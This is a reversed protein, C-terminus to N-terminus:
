PSSMREKNYLQLPFETRAHWCRLRGSYSSVTNRIIQNFVASLNAILKIRIPFLSVLRAAFILQIYQQRLQIIMANGLLEFLQAPLASSYLLLASKIRIM